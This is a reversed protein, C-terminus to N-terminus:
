PTFEKSTIPVPAPDLTPIKACFTRLAQRLKPQWLTQETAGCHLDWIMKLNRAARRTWFTTAIFGFTFIAFLLELAPQVQLYQQVSHTGLLAALLLLSGWLAVTRATKLLEFHKFYKLHLADHAPAYTPEIFLFLGQARAYRMLQFGHVLQNPDIKHSPAMPQEHASTSNPPAIHAPYYRFPQPKFYRLVFYLHEDDLLAIQEPSIYLGNIRAVPQQTYLAAPNHALANPAGSYLHVQQDIIPAGVFLESRELVSQLFQLDM